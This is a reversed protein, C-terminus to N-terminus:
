NEDMKLHAPKVDVMYYFGLDVTLRPPVFLLVM